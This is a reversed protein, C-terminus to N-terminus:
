VFIDGFSGSPRGYKKSGFSQAADEILRLKYKKAIKKLPNFDCIKGTFNVFLIVKTKKSILKEIKNVNINLDENIDAFVPKVNNLAIANTSSVWSMPTTIIEDNELELSKIALYLADTGSGTAVAYKRNCFNALKKEM